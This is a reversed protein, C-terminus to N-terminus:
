KREAYPEIIAAVLMRMLGYKNIESFSRSDVIDYKAGARLLDNDMAHIVPRGLETADVELFTILIERPKSMAHTCRVIIERLQHANGEGDSLIAILIPKVRGRNRQKRRFYDDLLFALPKAMNTGGVPTLQKFMGEIAPGRAENIIAFNNAFPILTIGEPFYRYGKSYLNLLEKRCWNWRTTLKGNRRGLSVIRDGMSGSCDLMLLCDYGALRALEKDLLEPHNIAGKLYNTSKGRSGKDLQANDIKLAINSNNKQTLNLGYVRGKRKVKLYYRSDVKQASIVQDGVKLGGLWALDPPFVKTVTGTLERKNSNNTDYGLKSRPTLYPTTKKIAKLASKYRQDSTGYKSARRLAARFATLARNYNGIKYLKLGANYANVSGSRPIAIMSPNRTDSVGGKLTVKSLSTPQSKDLSAQMPRLKPLKIEASSQSLCPFCLIIPCVILGIMSNVLLFRAWINKVFSVETKNSKSESSSNM